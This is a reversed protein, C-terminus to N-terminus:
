NWFDIEASKLLQKGLADDEDVNPLVVFVGVAM